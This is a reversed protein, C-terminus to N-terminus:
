LYFLLSIINVLFGKKGDEVLEVVNEMSLKGKLKKFFNEMEKINNKNFNLEKIYM